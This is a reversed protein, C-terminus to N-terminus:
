PRSSWHRDNCDVHFSNLVRTFVAEFRQVADARCELELRYVKENDRQAVVVLEDIWPTADQPDFYRNRALVGNLDGLTIARTELM